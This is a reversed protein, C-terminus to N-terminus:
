KFLSPGRPDLGASDHVQSTIKWFKEYIVKWKENEM